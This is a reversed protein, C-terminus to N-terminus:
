RAKSSNILPAKSFNNNFDIKVPDSNLVKFSGGGFFVNVAFLKM